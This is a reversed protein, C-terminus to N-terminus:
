EREDRMSHESERGPFCAGRMSIGIPEPMSPRLGSCTKLDPSSITMEERSRITLVQVRAMPDHMRVLGHVRHRYVNAAAADLPDDAGARLIRYGGDVSPLGAIRGYDGEARTRESHRVNRM